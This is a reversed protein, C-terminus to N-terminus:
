RKGSSSILQQLDAIVEASHRSTDVKLYTKAIKGQPDILFTYRKAYRLVFWDAYAGYLRAVVGDRDALLPFPLHYKKAFQAHSASDDVSVGVIQAGLTALQALDNRFACAEETCGPTDHLILWKGRLSDFGRKGTSTLCRPLALSGIAPRSRCGLSRRRCACCCALPQGNATVSESMLQTQLVRLNVSSRILTRNACKSRSNGTLKWRRQLLAAALWALLAAGTFPTMAFQQWSCRVIVRCFPWVLPSTTGGLVAALLISDAADGNPLDASVSWLWLSSVRCLTKSATLL